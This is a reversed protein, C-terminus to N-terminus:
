FNTHNTHSAKSLCCEEYANNSTSGEVFKSIQLYREINDYGANELCTKTLLEFIHYPDVNRTKM